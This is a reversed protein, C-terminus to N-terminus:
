HASPRATWWCRSPTCRAFGGHTLMKAPYSGWRRETAMDTIAVTTATHLAELCPGLGQTRQLEDIVTAHPGTSAVTIEDGDRRLTVAVMPSDPLMKSTIDAIEHLSGEVDSTSLLLATLESLGIAFEDLQHPEDPM